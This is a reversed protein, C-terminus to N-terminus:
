QFELGTAQATKGWKFLLYPRYANNYSAPEKAETKM